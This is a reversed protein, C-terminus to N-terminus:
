AYIGSRLADVCFRWEHLYAAKLAEPPEGRSWGSLVDNRTKLLFWRLFDVVEDTSFRLRGGDLGGFVARFRETFISSVQSRLTGEPLANAQQILSIYKPHAIYFDIAIESVRMFRDLVDPPPSQLRQGIWDYLAAYVREVAHVFLEEKGDIYEYLGGKSIGAQRCIRDTSGAAYGHAGFEAICAEVIRERKEAGLREFTDKM